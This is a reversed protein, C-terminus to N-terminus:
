AGLADGLVELYTPRADLQVKKGEATLEAFVGRRDNSCMARNVLGDDELRGILRSLASQSLESDASLDQMRCQGEKHESLRNLVEFESLSIGHSRQLARELSQRTRAHAAELERWQGLLGEGSAATSGKGATGTAANMSAIIAFTAHVNNRLYM